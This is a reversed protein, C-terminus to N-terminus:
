LLVLSDFNTDWGNSSTIALSSCTGTWSTTITSLRGVPLTTSVTPQGPCALTVTSSASGGNYAMVSVVRRPSLLSLTGSTRGPGNFSISNTTFQGWPRAVWWVGTGWDLLGTPYQGNLGRDPNAVDDFTVTRIQGGPPTATATAVRTPTRTPTATVTSAPTSTRTPTRTATASAAPTPTRTPTNTAARTPTAPPSGGGGAGVLILDLNAISVPVSSVHLALTNTGDVLENVPVPLAITQSTFTYPGSPYPWPATHATHGNFSYTVAETDWPWWNFELLAASANAMGHVNQFQLQLNGSNPAVYGLNGGSTGSHTADLIDFGLDRPLVPGDFGVNDWFFTHTGQTDFKNANYHVDEIWILGRTLPMSFTGSALQRLSTSGADSGWVQVSGQSIRVQFRNLQMARSPPQICGNVSFSQRTMVYNSTTYMSDVTLGGSGCPGALSFGFSNRALNSIGSAQQYPAPVPQDTLAFAPWAAHPGQSDDGVDFTVVGTRGAFDFPQRPYMALITSADGDNVAEALLGNCIVVDREPGVTRTTGCANLQTAQWGYVIGQSPNDTQTARSVGWVVGDLDGSRTGAGNPSPADFTDCFAAQALGCGTSQAEATRGGFAPSALALVLGAIVLPPVM